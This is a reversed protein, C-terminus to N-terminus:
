SNSIFSVTRRSEIQVLLDELQKVGELGEDTCGEVMVGRQPDEILNLNQKDNGETLLDRVKENYIEVASLKLLFERDPEEDIAKFIDKASLRIVHSMTYTKGSGTQGYCFLTANLGQASNYTAGESHRATIMVQKQCTTHSM